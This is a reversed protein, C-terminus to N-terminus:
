RSLRVLNGSDYRIVWQQWVGVLGEGEKMVKMVMDNM